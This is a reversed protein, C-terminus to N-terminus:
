LKTVKAYEIEAQKIAFSTDESDTNEKGNEHEDIAENVAQENADDIMKQEKIEKDKKMSKTKLNSLEVRLKKIVATKESNSRYGDSLRKASDVVMHGLEAMSKNELDVQNCSNTGMLAPEPATGLLMMRLRYM